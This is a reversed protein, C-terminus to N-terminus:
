AVAEAAKERAKELDYQRQFPAQGPTAQEAIVSVVYESVGLLAKLLDRAKGSALDTRTAQLYSGVEIDRLQFGSQRILDRTRGPTFTHPHGRDIKLRPLLRQVFYGAWSRNNVTLYLIGGPKLVRSLERMVADVDHVHDICNEIIALDFHSSPSPLREGVGQLYKVEPDRAKAFAPHSSYQDMLPDVALREAGPFFTCVGVPGRGVEIISANGSTLRHLNLRKLRNILQDARWRYWGLDGFGSDIDKAVNNWFGLEYDQAESWRKTDEM